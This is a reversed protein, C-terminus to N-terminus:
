SDVLLSTGRRWKSGGGDGLSVYRQRGWKSGGGDGESLTRRRVVESREGPPNWRSVGGDGAAGMAISSEPQLVEPVLVLEVRLRM